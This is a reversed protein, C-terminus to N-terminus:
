LMVIHGVRGQRKTNFSLALTEMEMWEDSDGLMRILQDSFVM